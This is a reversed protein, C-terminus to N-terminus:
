GGLYLGDKPALNEVMRRVERWMKVELICRGLLGATALRPAYEREVAEQVERKKGRHWEEDRLLERGDAIFPAQSKRKEL